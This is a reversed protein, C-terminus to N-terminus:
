LSVPEQLARAPLDVKVAVADAGGTELLERDPRRHPERFFQSEVSGLGARERDDHRPAGRPPELEPPRMSRCSLMEAKPPARPRPSATAVTVRSTDPEPM